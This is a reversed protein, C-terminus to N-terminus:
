VHRGGGAEGGQARDALKERYERRLARAMFAAVKIGESAQQDLRGLTPTTGQSDFERLEAEEARELKVKEAARQRRLDVEAAARGRETDGPLPPSAHALEKRLLMVLFGPPNEVSPRQARDVLLRLRAKLEPEEWGARLRGLLIGPVDRCSAASVGAPDLVEACLRKVVASHESGDRGDDSGEVL